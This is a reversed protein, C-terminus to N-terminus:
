TGLKKWICNSAPFEWIKLCLITDKPTDNIQFLGNLDTEKKRRRRNTKTNSKKGEKNLKDMCVISILSCSIFEYTNRFILINLSSILFRSIWKKPPFYPLMNSSNWIISKKLWFDILICELNKVNFYYDLLNYSLCIKLYIILSHIISVDKSFYAAM